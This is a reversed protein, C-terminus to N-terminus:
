RSACLWMGACVYMGPAGLDILLQVIQGTMDQWAATHLPTHGDNSEAELMSLAHGGARVLARVLLPKLMGVAMHLATGKIEDAARAELSAGCTILMAVAEPDNHLQVWRQLPTLGGSDREDLVAGSLTCPEMIQRLSDVGGGNIATWLHQKLAEVHETEDMAKGYADVTVGTQVRLTLCTLVAHFLVWSTRM